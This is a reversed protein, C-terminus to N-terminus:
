LQFLVGKTIATKKNILKLGGPLFKIEETKQIKGFRGYVNFIKRNATESDIIIIIDFHNKLFYLIPYNKSNKKSNIIKNCYIYKPKDKLKRNNYFVLVDASETIRFFISEYPSKTGIIETNYGTEFGPNRHVMHLKTFKLINNIDRSVPIDGKLNIIMSM